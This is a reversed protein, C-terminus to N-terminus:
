PHTEEGAPTHHLHNHAAVGLLATAIGACTLCRPNRCEAAHLDATANVVEALYTALVYGRCACDAEQHAFYVALDAADDPPPQMRAHAQAVAHAANM